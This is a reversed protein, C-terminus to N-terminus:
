EIDEQPFERVFEGKCYPCITIITSWNKYPINHEIRCPNPLSWLESLTFKRDCNDCELITHM